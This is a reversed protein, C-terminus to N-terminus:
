QQAFSSPRVAKDPDIAMAHNLAVEVSAGAHFTVDSGRALLGILTGVAAGSLGGIGIGRISRSAAMGGVAGVQAGQASTELVKEADKGKESERTVTGPEKMQVGQDGPVQNIAAAIDLSYGNPFILTTLHFQLEARGKIRGARKVEDVLGQVWTGAPVMLNGKVVVPFTTQAYVTDGPQATKTSIPQRLQLPLKTGAPVIWLGAAPAETKPPGAVEERTKLKPQEVPEQDTAPQQAACVAAVVFLSILTRM